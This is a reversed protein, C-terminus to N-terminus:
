INNILCDYMICVILAIGWINVHELKLKQILVNRSSISANRHIILEAPKTRCVSNATIKTNWVPNSRTSVYSINRINRLSIM